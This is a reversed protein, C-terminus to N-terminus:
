QGNTPLDASPRFSVVEGTVTDIILANVQVDRRNSIIIGRVGSTGPSRVIDISVAEGSMLTMPGSPIQSSVTHRCVGGNCSGQMFEIKIFNLSIQADGEIDGAAVTIRLFQDPGLTALGTDARFRQPPAANATSDSSILSLLVISLALAITLTIRRKM